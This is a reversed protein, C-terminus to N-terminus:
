KQGAMLFHTFKSIFTKRPRTVKGLRLCRETRSAGSSHYNALAQWLPIVGACWHWKGQRWCIWKTQTGHRSQLSRSFLNSNPFREKTFGAQFRLFISKGHKVDWVGGDRRLIILKLGHLGPKWTARDFCGEKGNELQKKQKSRLRRETRSVCKCELVCCFCLLDTDYCGQALASRHSEWIMILTFVRKMVSVCRRNVAKEVTIAQRREVLVNWICGRLVCACVDVCVCVCVCVFASYLCM